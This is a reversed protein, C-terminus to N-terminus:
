KKNDIISFVISVVGVVWLAVLASCCIVAISKTILETMDTIKKYIEDKIDDGNFKVFEIENEKFFTEVLENNIDKLNYLETGGKFGLFRTNSERFKLQIIDDIEYCNKNIKYYYTPIVPEISLTTYTAMRAVINRTSGIKCAKMDNCNINKDIYYIIDTEM